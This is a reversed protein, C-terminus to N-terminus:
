LKAGQTNPRQVGGQPSHSGQLPLAVLVFDELIAVPLSPLSPLALILSLRAVQKRPELAQKLIGVTEVLSEVVAFMVEPVTAVAVAAAVLAMQVAMLHLAAPIQLRRAVPTRPGQLM